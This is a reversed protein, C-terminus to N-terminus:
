GSYTNLYQGIGPFRYGIGQQDHALHWHTLVAVHSLAYETLFIILCFSRLRIDVDLKSLIIRTAISPGYLSKSSM